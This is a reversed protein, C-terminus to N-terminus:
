AEKPEVQVDGILFVDRAVLQQETIERGDKLTTYRTNVWGTVDLWTGKTLENKIIHVDHEGEGNRHIAVPTESIYEIEFFEKNSEKNPNKVKKCVNTYLYVLIIENSIVVTKTIRGRINMNKCDYMEKGSAMRSSMTLGYIEVQDRAINYNRKKQCVGSIVVMDGLEFMKDYTSGLAGEFYTSIRTYKANAGRGKKVSVTFVHKGKLQKKFILKGSIIVNNHFEFENGSSKIVKSM